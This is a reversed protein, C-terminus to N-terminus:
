IPSIIKMFDPDDKKWIKGDLYYHMINPFVSISAIFSILINGEMAISDIFVNFHESLFKEGIGFFSIIFV